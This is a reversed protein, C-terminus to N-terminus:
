ESRPPMGDDDARMHDHQHADARGALDAPEADQDEVANWFEDTFM